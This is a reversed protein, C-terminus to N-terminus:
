FIAFNVVYDLYTLIVTSVKILNTMLLLSEIMNRFSLQQRKVQEQQRQQQDSHANQYRFKIGQALSYELTTRIQFNKRLERWSISQKLFDTSDNKRTSNM